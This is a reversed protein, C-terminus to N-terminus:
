AAVPNMCAPMKPLVLTLTKIRSPYRVFSGRMTKTVGINDGLAFFGYMLMTLLVNVRNGIAIFEHHEGKDFYLLSLFLM